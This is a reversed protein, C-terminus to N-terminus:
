WKFRSGGGGSSGGGFGRFGGRTSSGRIGGSGFRGMRGYPVRTLPHRSVVYDFLLGIATLLPIGTWWDYLWTIIIGFAAGVVGGLWWSKTRAFLAAIWELFLFLVVLMWAGIGSGGAEEGYRDAAYEDGIHKQIADIGALLGVYYEGERFHPAIDKEAIGRAVVDPIKGELGYGTAIFGERNEYDLLLLVGNDKDEQGVGWKRLLEVATEVLSAGSLNRMIVIAIENSTTAQYDALIRELEADQDAALVGVADTVFGDNPPLPDTQASVPVAWLLLFLPLVRLAIRM